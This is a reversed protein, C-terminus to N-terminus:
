THFDQAQVQVKNRSVVGLTQVSMQHHLNTLAADPREEASSTTGLNRVCLPFHVCFISLRINEFRVLELKWWFVVTCTYTVKGHITTGCPNTWLGVVQHSRKKRLYGSSWVKLLVGERRSTCGMRRQVIVRLLTKVYATTNEVYLADGKNYLTPWTPDWSAVWPHSQGHHMANGVYVFWVPASDHIHGGTNSSRTYNRSRASCKIKFRCVLCGIFYLM